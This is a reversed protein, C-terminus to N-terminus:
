RLIDCYEDDVLPACNVEGSDSHRAPRDETNASPGCPRLPCQPEQPGTYGERGLLSPGSVSSPSQAERGSRALRDYYDHCVQLCAPLVAHLKKLYIDHDVSLTMSRMDIDRVVRGASGRAGAPRRPRHRHLSSPRFPHLFHLQGGVSPPSIQLDSRRANSM